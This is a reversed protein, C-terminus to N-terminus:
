FRLNFNSENVGLGIVLIGVVVVLKDMIYLARIVDGM